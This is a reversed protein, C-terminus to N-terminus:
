SSIVFNFANRQIIDIFAGLLDKEFSTPENNLEKRLADLKKYDRTLKKFLDKIM